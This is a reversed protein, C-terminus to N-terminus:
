AQAASEASLWHASALDSQRANSRPTLEAIPNRAYGERAFAAYDRPSWVPQGTNHVAFLAATASAKQQPAATAPASPAATRTAGGLFAAALTRLPM